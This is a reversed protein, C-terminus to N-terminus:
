MSGSYNRCLIAKLQVRHTPKIWGLYGSSCNVELVSYNTIAKEYNVITNRHNYSFWAYIFITLLGFNLIIVKKM